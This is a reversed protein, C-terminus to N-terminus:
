EIVDYVLPSKQAQNTIEWQSSSIINYSKKIDDVILELDLMVSSDNYYIKVLDDGKFVYDGRKKLLKLGVSRDINDEKTKRGAGLLVASKGLKLADIESIIGEEESALCFVKESSPLYEEFNINKRNVGKLQNLILERFKKIAEGNQMKLRLLEKGEEIDSVIGTKFLTHSGLILCLETLDSPGNGKLTEITEKIELANGVTNGLPQDMDSIVAFIDKNYNKGINVMEQALAKAENKTKMFAGKGVKVDLAIIDTGAALKKSMISSAIFPISDVTATVDRLAYIKKEVPALEETQSIISVGSRKINEIFEENSLFPCFGAISELKDITGGTHGLGRGSIKAVKIGSAGLLPVLVLTTKDGVGGTSHKDVIKDGIERLDLTTGTNQITKTFYSTERSNLGNLFAAMLFASMQYDFIDGKDFGNVFFELEDFSLELGKRKKLIIDYPTM